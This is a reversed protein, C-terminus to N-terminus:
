SQETDTAPEEDLLDALGDFNAIDWAAFEVDSEASAVPDARVRRFDESLEEFFREREKCLLLKEIVQGIPRGESPALHQLKIHTASSIRITAMTM